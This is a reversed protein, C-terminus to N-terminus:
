VHVFARGGGRGPQLALHHPHHIRLGHRQLGRGGGAPVATRLARWAVRARRHGPGPLAGDPWQSDARLCRQQGGAGAHAQRGRPHLVLLHRGGGAAALRLRLRNGRVARLVRTPQLQRHAEVPLRHLWPGHLHRHRHRQHRPEPVGPQQEGPDAVLALPAAGAPLPRRQRRRPAPPNRGGPRRPPAPQRRQAPHRHHAFCGRQDPHPSHRQM